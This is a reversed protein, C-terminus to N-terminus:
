VGAFEEHETEDTWGVFYLGWSEMQVFRKRSRLVVHM